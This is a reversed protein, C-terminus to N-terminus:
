RNDNFDNKAYYGQDDGPNVIFSVHCRYKFAKSFRNRRVGLGGRDIWDISSRLRECNESLLEQTPSTSYNPQLTPAGRFLEPPIGINQYPSHAQFADSIAWNAPDELYSRSNVVKMSSSLLGSLQTAKKQKLSLGTSFADPIPNLSAM